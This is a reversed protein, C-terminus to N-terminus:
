IFRRPPFIFVQKLFIPIRAAAIKNAANHIIPHLSTLLLSGTGSVKVTSIFAPSCPVTLAFGALPLTTFSM